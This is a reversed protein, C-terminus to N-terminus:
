LIFQRAEYVIGKRVEAVKKPSGTITIDSKYRFFDIITNIKQSM